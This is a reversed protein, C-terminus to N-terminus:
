TCLVSFWILEVLEGTICDPLLFLKEVLEYKKYIRMVRSGSTHLRKMKNWNIMEVTKAVAHLDFIIQKRFPTELVSDWKIKHTNDLCKRWRVPVNLEHTKKIIEHVHEDVFITKENYAFLMILDSVDKPIYSNLFLTTFKPIIM